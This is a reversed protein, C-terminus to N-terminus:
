GVPWQLLPYIILLRVTAPAFMTRGCNKTFHWDSCPRVSHAGAPQALFKYYTCLGMYPRGDETARTDDPMATAPSRPRDGRRHMGGGCLILMEWQVCIYLSTVGHMVVMVLKGLLPLQWLLKPITHPLTGRSFLPKKILPLFLFLPLSHSCQGEKKSTIFTSLESTIM